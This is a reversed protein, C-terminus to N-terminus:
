SYVAMGRCLLFVAVYEPVKVREGPSLNFEIDRLKLKIRTLTKVETLEDGFVVADRLPNFSDIDDVRTVRLGTKGHLSGPLRILRKVDATVPADIYIRRKAIAEPLLDSLVKQMRRSVKNGKLSLNKENLGYKEFLEPNRKLKRNIYTIIRLVANSDHLFGRSVIRPNTLMLYDVIERREASGLSLFEESTVHVHYGRGGSFFVEVSEEDVGFDKKLVVLLKKVEMKAIELTREFSKSRVPLHDADIDFILDAGLWGKKDMRDEDPFEYYASSYYIHAPISSLVYDRLEEPTKFSIHRFMVFDPLLDFPVFAFERRYFERPLDFRCKKYYEEFKKKLYPRTL